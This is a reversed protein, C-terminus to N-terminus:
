VAAGPFSVCQVTEGSSEDTDTSYNLGIRRRQRERSLLFTLITEYRKNQGGHLRPLPLGEPKIKLRSNLNPLAM